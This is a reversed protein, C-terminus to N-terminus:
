SVGKRAARIRNRASRAQEVAMAVGADGTPTPLDRPLSGKREIFKKAFADARNRMHSEELNKDM